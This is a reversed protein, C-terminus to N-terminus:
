YAGRVFDCDARDREGNRARSYEGNAREVYYERERIPLIYDEALQAVLAYKIAEQWRAPLDGTSSASEWDKLKRVGDIYITYIGDPTPWFNVENTAYNVYFSEPQGEHAKDDISKYQRTNLRQLCIERDDELLYAKDVYAMGNTTPIAYIEDGDATTLTERVETWLMVGDNNWAKLIGNIIQVGFALQEGTLTDGDAIAGVKRYALQILENRTLIFDYDTSAM